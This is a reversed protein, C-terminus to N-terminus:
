KAWSCQSWSHIDRQLQFRSYGKLLRLSAQRSGPSFKLRNLKSVPLAQVMRLIKITPLSLSLLGLDHQRGCAGCVIGNHLPSFSFDGGPSEEAGCLLCHDLQLGIGLIDFLKMQFCIILDPLSAGTGLSEFIWLCLSFLEEESDNERTWQDILECVLMAATYLPYDQRLLPYPNILEAQDIRALSTRHGFVATIELLSFFELKNVFRKKSRKAGKAIGTLKGHHETFFTVIKDSEGYDMVKLVIARTRIAAM